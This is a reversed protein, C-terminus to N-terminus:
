SINQKTTAAVCLFHELLPFYKEKVAKELDIICSFNVLFKPPASVTYSYM